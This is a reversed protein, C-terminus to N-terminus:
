TTPEGMPQAARIIELFTKQARPDTQCDDLLKLQVTVLVGAAQRRVEVLPLSAVQEKFVIVTEGAALRRTIDGRKEMDGVVLNMPPRFTAVPARANWDTVEVGQAALLVALHGEPDWVRFMRRAALIRLPGLVHNPYIRLRWQGAPEWAGTDERATFRIELDAERKLDPVQFRWSWEVGAKASPATVSIITTPNGVPVVMDGTIQVVDAQVELREGLTGRVTLPVSLLDGAFVHATGHADRPLSATAALTVEVSGATANQAGACWACIAILMMARKM